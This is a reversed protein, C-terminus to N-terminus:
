FVEYPRSTAAAEATGILRKAKQYLPILEARANLDRLDQVTDTTELVGPRSAVAVLLREKVQPILHNKAHRFVSSKAIGLDRAIAELSTNKEMLSKDVAQRKEVPLNCVCCRVPVPPPGNRKNAAILEEIRKKM